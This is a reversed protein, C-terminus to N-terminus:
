TEGSRMISGECVAETSPPRSAYHVNLSHPLSREKGIIFHGCLTSSSDASSKDREWKNKGIMQEYLYPVM